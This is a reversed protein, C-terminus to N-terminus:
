THMYMGSLMVIIDEDYQNIFSENPDHIILPGHIGDTYQAAAHSHWWYTGRQDPVTFNYTFSQGPPIPCQTVGVTGDM